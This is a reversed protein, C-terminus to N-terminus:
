CGIFTLQRYFIDAKTKALELGQVPDAQVKLPILNQRDDARVPRALGAQQIADIPEIAGLAPGNKEVPLLDGMGGDILPGLQTDGPGELINLEEVAQRGQLIQQSRPM